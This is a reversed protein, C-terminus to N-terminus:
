NTKEGNGDRREILVMKLGHNPGGKWPKETGWLPVDKMGAFSGDGQLQQASCRSCDRENLLQGTVAKQVSNSWGLAM